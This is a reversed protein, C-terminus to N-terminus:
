HMELSDLYRRIEGTMESNETQTFGLSEYLWNMGGFLEMLVRSLEGDMLETRVVGQVQITAKIRMLSKMIVLLNHDVKNEFHFWFPWVKTLEGVFNRIEDIEYVERPDSEWGAFMVSLANAYKKAFERSESFVSLKAYVGTIDKKLVDEKSVIIIADVGPAKFM